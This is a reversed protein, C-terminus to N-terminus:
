NTSAENKVEKLDDAITELCQRIENTLIEHTKKPDREAAIIPSVRAPINLLQDRVLRGKEFAAQRVDKAYVLSGELREYNLKAM